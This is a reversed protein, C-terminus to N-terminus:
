QGLLLSNGLPTFGNSLLYAPIPIQVEGQAYSAVEYPPYSFVISNDNRLFFNEKTPLADIDMPGVVDRMERAQKKIESVLSAKGEPTFLDDLTVVKGSSMDYNVYFTYYMGHAAGPIYGSNTVAYSMYGPTLTVVDGSVSSVGDYRTFFNPLKMVVSDPIVTDALEYGADSAMDHLSENIIRTMDEGKKNFALMMITDQLERAERGMLIEPMIFEAKCGYSLDTSDAFLHDSASGVLRYSAEAQIHSFRVESEDYKPSTGCSSMLMAGVAATVGLTINIKKM